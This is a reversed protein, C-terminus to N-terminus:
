LASSIQLTTSDHITNTPGLSEPFARTATILGSEQHLSPLGDEEKKEVFRIFLLLAQRRLM